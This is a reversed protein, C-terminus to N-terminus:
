ADLESDSLLEGEPTEDDEDRDAAMLAEIEIEAMSDAEAVLQGNTIVLAEHEAAAAALDEASLELESVALSKKDPGNGPRPATEDDLHAIYLKAWAEAEAKSAWKTGDPWTAQELTSGGFDIVVSTNKGIEYTAM